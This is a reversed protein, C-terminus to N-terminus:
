KMLIMKKSSSYKGATMKYYYLGSAVSRNNNDTGTWIVKHDGATQAQNVLTRVLQGKVNFIEIKVDQNEKLSYSITTEPNFPNPYNGGLKTVLAPIANDDNDTITEIISRIMLEGSTLPLWTTATSLKTYSNGNASTDLGILNSNPVDLVALYFSSGNEITIDSTIPVYNWGQQVSAAPLQFQGLQTSPMGDPGDDALVRVILASPTATHVYVKAYKVRVKTDHTYKAAMMHSSGINFGAEATGDDNNLEAHDDPLVFVTAPNSAGSEYQGYMATVYYTHLGGAVGPDTYTMESGDREDILISNRYIQYASVERGRNNGLVYEKGNADQVYVQITWNYDLTAGHSLLTAWSGGMKIMNGYGNVAPGADVNAPHGTTTNNRYGVWVAVRPPITWPETLIVENWEGATHSPVPQDVVMEGGATGTWIRISHQCQDYGLAPVFKVKTIQMGVWPNIGYEGSPDWKAAVDFDAANGTGIANDSIEGCHYIWGPEGGGFDGLQWNLTVNNGDVTATLNSPAEIYIDQYIKVDDIMYGTGNVTSNSKFYWRLRITQGAYDTIYGNVVSYSDVMSMWTEPIGSYVYNSGNPDGYPNSMAYWTTGGDVSIEWGHYDVDPFTGNDTISGQLMFDARIDGGTPLEIEPSILYNLMNPNYTGQANQCKMVHTPSPADPDTSLHWLDGGLPVLSQYTMQGDDVGNNTYGGFSIDDVMWGFMSRDNATCYAPDSAFAFRVKVSQGVYASLDFTATTWDLLSGGWAPINPGEGHQQGFAYSSNGSYAPTGSIVTWTSGNNTSVRVNMSDWVNYNEHQGPDEVKHRM